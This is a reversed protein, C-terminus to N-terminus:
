PTAGTATRRVRPRCRTLEDHGVLARRNGGILRLMKEFREIPRGSALAAAGSKPERQDALDGLPM